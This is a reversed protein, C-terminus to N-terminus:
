AAAVPAADAPTVAPVPRVPRLADLAAAIAARETPMGGDGPLAPWAVRQMTNTSEDAGQLARHATAAALLNPHADMLLAHPVQGFAGCAKGREALEASRARVSTVVARVELEARQLEAAARAYRALAPSLEAVAAPTFADVGARVAEVERLRAGAAAAAAEEEAAIGARAARLVDDARREAQEATALDARAAAVRAESVAVVSVADHAAARLSRGRIAAQDRAGRTSEVKLWKTATQDATWTAEAQEAAAVAARTTRDAEDAARAAEDRDEVAARAAQEAVVLASRAAEAAARRAAAIHEAGSVDRGAPPPNEHDPDASKSPDFAAGGRMSRLM